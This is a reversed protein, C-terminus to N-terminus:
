LQCRQRFVLLTCVGVAGVVGGVFWFLLSNIIVSRRVMGL